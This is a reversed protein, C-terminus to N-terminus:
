CIAACFRRRASRGTPSAAAAGAPDPRHHHGRQLDRGLPDGVAADGAAHRQARALQPFALIFMAPIIAFYKAVDNAISFTTLAGRTMLLQKGIEVIEILKTPNSDLDVMNGAEKAATTGTNMAVGVDAQALAPADNTGDGTMAVLKGERRSAAQHAGAQGRADGRALFDDVGAEAAIAAATLPNDGTIMVTRIGMARLHAFRERMGGKVIDKLHVVGLPAAARPSSWRRAARHARDRRRDGATEPPVTGGDSAVYQPIADAAGKRIERGDLDVGSMRTQASFPM